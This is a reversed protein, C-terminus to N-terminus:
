AKAAAGKAAEASGDRTIERYAVAAPAYIMVIQLVQLLFQMILTLVASLATLVNLHTMDQLVDGGGSIAVLIVSIVAFVIWIIVYFIAALLLMGLLSWYHGRTRGWADALSIRGTEFVTPLLLSLRVGIWFVFAFAGLVVVATSIPGSASAARYLVLSVIATAVYIGVCLLNALTLRLETRGVKLHAFGHESPHLVLRIVGATMISWLLASLALVLLFAPLSHALLDSADDLDGSFFGGKRAAAIFEPGLTATMVLFILLLGGFYVASWALLVGPHNRSLRFGEMAADSPSFRSM